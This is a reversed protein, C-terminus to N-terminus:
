FLFEGREIFVDTLFQNLPKLQGGFFDELDELDALHLDDRKLRTPPTKSVYGECTPIFFYFFIIAALFISASSFRRM